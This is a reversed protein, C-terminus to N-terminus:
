KLLTAKIMGANEGDIRLRFFYMGSAAKNGKADKGQWSAQHLGAPTTGQVLTAVYQGSSNYVRLEVEATAALSYSITTAPNFPNPYAGRLENSLPVEPQAHVETITIHWTIAPASLEGDDVVVQLEYTGAISMNMTFQPDTVPQLGGGLYWSYYLEEGEPDIANVSFTIATGSALTILTDAPEYSIIQPPQNPLLVEVNWQVADTLIGDSVTGEISFTGVDQAAFSFTSDSSTQTVGDVSWQWSLDDGDIDSASISFNVAQNQMTTIYLSDPLYSIIQPPDNLPLVTVLVTDSASDRMVESATFVITEAGHWNPQPALSVLGDNLSVVIHEWGSASFSLDDGDPDIFVTNLDITENTTDEFMVIDAIPQVLQPPQNPNGPFEYAGMDVTGDLLRENGDPDYAPLMLGTTDPRGANICPSSQQLRYPLAPDFAPDADLNNTYQGTFASGTFGASGGQVNCYDFDATSLSNAIYVQQGDESASNGWLICNVLVPHSTFNLNLAGGYEAQNDALTCNTIVPACNTSLSIAGGSGATTNNAIVCGILTPSGNDLGLAGGSGVATNNTIICNIFIPDAQYCYLVPSGSDSSNGTFQCNTFVSEGGSHCRVAGGSYQCYNNSFLTNSVMITSNRIHLAGGYKAENDSFRCDTISVGDYDKIWMAGGQAGSSYGTYKTGHELIVHSFSSPTNSAATADFNIGNWGSAPDAAAFSISDGEAGNCLLTGNVNLAFFGAFIVNVGAEITLTTGDTIEIDGLITYPNGAANWTGSVPGAPIDTASLMLSISLLLFFLIRKM